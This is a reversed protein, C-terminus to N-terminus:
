ARACAPRRVWSRRRTRTARLITSRRRRSAPLTKSGLRGQACAQVTARAGRRWRYRLYVVCCCMRLQTPMFVQLLSPVSECVRRVSRARPPRESRRPTTPPPQMMRACWGRPALVQHHHPHVLEHPRHQLAEERCVAADGAAHRPSARRPEQAEQCPRRVGQGVGVASM